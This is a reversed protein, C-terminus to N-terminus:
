GDRAVAVAAVGQAVRVGADADVCRALLVPAPQSFLLVPAQMWATAAATGALPNFRAAM